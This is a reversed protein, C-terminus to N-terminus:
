LALPLTFTDPLQSQQTELLPNRSVAKPSNNVVTHFNNRSHSVTQLGLPSFSTVSDTMKAFKTKNLTNRIETKNQLRLQEQEDFITHLPSFDMHKIPQLQM